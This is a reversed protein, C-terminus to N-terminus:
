RAQGFRHQVLVGSNYARGLLWLRVPHKWLARLFAGQDQGAFRLWEQHWARWLARTRDNRAVFIVGCQLSIPEMGIESLTFGKDKDGIHWLL